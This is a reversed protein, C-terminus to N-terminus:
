NGFVTGRRRKRRKRHLHGNWKRKAGKGKPLGYMKQRLSTPVAAVQPIM